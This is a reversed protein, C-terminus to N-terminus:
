TSLGAPKILTKEIVVDWKTHLLYPAAQRITMTQFLDTLPEDGLEASFVVCVFRGYAHRSKVTM